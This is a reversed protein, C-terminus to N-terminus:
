PVREVPLEVTAVPDGDYWGTAGYLNDRLKYIEGKVTVTLTEPVPMGQPWTWAMTVREPMNPNFYNAFYKDRDLYTTPIEPVTGAPAALPAPVVVKGLLNNPMASRNVVDLDVMILQKPNSPPVGTPSITGIRASRLTVFWRGTDIQQGAAAVPTEPPHAAEYVAM